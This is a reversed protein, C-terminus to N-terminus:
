LKDTSLQPSIIDLFVKILCFSIIIIIVRMTLYQHMADM